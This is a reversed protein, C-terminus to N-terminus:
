IVGKDAIPVLILTGAPVSPGRPFRVVHFPAIEGLARSFSFHSPQEGIVVFSDPRSTFLGKKGGVTCSSAM